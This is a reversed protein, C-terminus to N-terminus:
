RGYIRMYTHYLLAPQGDDDPTTTIYIQRFCMFYEKEREGWVSSWESDRTNYLDLYHCCAYSPINRNTYVTAKAERSYM